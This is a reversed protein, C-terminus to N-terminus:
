CAVADQFANIFYQRAEADVVRRNLKFMCGANKRVISAAHPGFMRMLVLM